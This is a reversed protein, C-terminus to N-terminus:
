VQPDGDDKVGEIIKDLTPAIKNNLYDRVGVYKTLEVNAANITESVKKIREENLGIETIIGNTEPSLTEVDIEKGKWTVKSM